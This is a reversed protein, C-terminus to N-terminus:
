LLNSIIEDIPEKTSQSILLLDRKLSAFDSLFAKGNEDLFCKRLRNEYDMRSEKNILGKEMLESVFYILESPSGNWWIPRFTGIISSSFVAKLSDLSNNEKIILRKSILLEYLEDIENEALGLKSYSKFERPKFNAKVVKQTTNISELENIKDTLLEIWLKLLYREEFANKLISEDNLNGSMIHEWYNVPIQGEVKARSIIKDITEEINDINYFYSPNEKNRYRDIVNEKREKLETLKENESCVILIENEICSIIKQRHKTDIALKAKKSILEVQEKSLNKDLKHVSSASSLINALVNIEYLKENFSNRSILVEILNHNDMKTIFEEVELESWKPFCNIRLDNLSLQKKNNKFFDLAPILYRSNAISFIIAEQSFSNEKTRDQPLLNQPIIQSDIHLLIEEINESLPLYLERKNESIKSFKNILFLYFDCTAEAKPYQEYNIRGDSYIQTETLYNKGNEIVKIYTERALKMESEFGFRFLLDYPTKQWFEGTLTTISMREEFILNEFKQITKQLLREKDKSNLYQKAFRARILEFFKTKHNNYFEIAKARIKAKEASNCFIHPNRNGTKIENWINQKEDDTLNQNFKEFVIIEEDAIKEYILDTDVFRHPPYGNLWDELTYIHYPIYWKTNDSCDLYGIIERM